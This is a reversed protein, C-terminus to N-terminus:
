ERYASDDFAPLAVNIASNVLSFMSKDKRTQM